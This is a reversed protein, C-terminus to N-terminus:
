LWRMPVTIGNESLLATENLIGQLIKHGRRLFLVLLPNLFLFHFMWLGHIFLILYGLNPIGNKKTQYSVNRNGEITGICAVSIYLYLKIIKPDEFLRGFINYFSKLKKIKIGQWLYRGPPTQILGHNTCVFLQPIVFEHSIIQFKFAGFPTKGSLDVESTRVLNPPRM